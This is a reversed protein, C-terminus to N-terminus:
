PTEGGAIAAGTHGMVTRGDGDPVRLSSVDRRCFSYVTACSSTQGLDDLDDDPNVGVHLGMARRRDIGAGTPHQTLQRHLSGGLAVLGEHVECARVGHQPSPRNFAGAPM